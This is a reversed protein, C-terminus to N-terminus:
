PKHDFIGAVYRAAAGWITAMAVAWILTELIAM